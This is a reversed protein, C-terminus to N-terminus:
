FPKFIRNMLSKFTSPANTSGFLMVLFEYYGEHTYFSTKPIDENRVRIQHHRSILNLKSFVSSGCLEDLLEDVIPISYEDKINAKNM